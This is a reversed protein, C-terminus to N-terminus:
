SEMRRRAATRAPAPPEVEAFDTVVDGMEVIAKPASRGTLVVTTRKVKDRIMEIVTREDVTGEDVLRNTDDLILIDYDGETLLQRARELAAEVSPVTEDFDQLYSRDEAQREIGIMELKPRLVRTSTVDGMTQQIPGTFHIFAAKGGHGVARCALGLAATTKGKGDGTFVIVKGPEETNGGM